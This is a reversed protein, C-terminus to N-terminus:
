DSYELIPKRYKQSEFQRSQNFLGDSLCQLLKHDIKLIYCPFVERLVYVFKAGIFIGINSLHKIKMRSINQKQIHRMLSSKSKNDVM